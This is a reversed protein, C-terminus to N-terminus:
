NKKIAKVKAKHQKKGKVNEGKITAALKLAEYSNIVGGTISLDAFNVKEDASGPKNVM